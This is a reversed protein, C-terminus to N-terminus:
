KPKEYLETRLNSFMRSLNRKGDAAFPKIRFLDSERLVPSEIEIVFLQLFRLFLTNDNWCYAMRFWFSFCAFQFQNTVPVKNSAFMLFVLILTSVFIQRTLLGSHFTNVCCWMEYGWKQMSKLACGDRDPLSSYNVSWQMIWHVTTFIWPRAFKFSKKKISVSTLTEILRSSANLYCM